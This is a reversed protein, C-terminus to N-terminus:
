EPRRVHTYIFKKGSANSVRARLSVVNCRARAKTLSQTQKTFILRCRGFVFARLVKLFYLRISIGANFRFSKNGIETDDATSPKCTSQGTLREVGTHAARFSYRLADNTRQVHCRLHILPM